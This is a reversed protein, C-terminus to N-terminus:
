FQKGEKENGGKKKEEKRGEKRDGGGEQLLLIRGQLLWHWPQALAGAACLATYATQSIKPKQYENNLNQPFPNAKFDVSEDKEKVKIEQLHDM